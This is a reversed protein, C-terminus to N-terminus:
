ELSYKKMQEYIYEYTDIYKKEWLGSMTATSNISIIKKFPIKSFYCLEFPFKDRLVVCNPFNSEYDFVDEPHTKIIVSDNDYNKLIDKYGLVFGKKNIGDVRYYPQTLLINERGNMVLTRIKEIDCGLVYLIKNKENETLNQWKKQLDLLVAKNRLGKPIEARGTFYIKKVYKNWGYAVYRRTFTKEIGNKRLYEYPSYAIMGDELLFFDHNFFCRSYFNHDQGYVPVEKNTMSWIAIFYRITKSIKKWMYHHHKFYKNIKQLWISISVDVGINNMNNVIESLRESTLIYKRKEWDRDLLLYIMLTYQTEFLCIRRQEM